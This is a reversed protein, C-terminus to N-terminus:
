DEEDDAESGTVSTYEEGNFLFGDETTTVEGHLVGRLLKERTFTRGSKEGEFVTSLDRHIQDSM